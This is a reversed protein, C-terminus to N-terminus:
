PQAQPKAVAATAPSEPFRLLAPVYGGTHLQEAHELIRGRMEKATKADEVLARGLGADEALAVLEHRPYRKLWDDTLTFDQALRAPANTLGALYVYEPAPANKNSYGSWNYAVLATLTNLHGLLEEDTMGVLLELLARANAGVGSKKLASISIHDSDNPVGPAQLLLEHLADRRVQIEAPILDAAGLGSLEGVTIRGDNGLRGLILGCVTLALTLHTDGVIAARAARARLMHAELYASDPMERTSPAPSGDATTAAAKEHRLKIDKRELLEGTELNVTIVLGKGGGAYKKHDYASWWGKFAEVEVFTWDGKKIRREALAKAHVLQADLAKAKDEFYAEFTDFMDRKVSLGSKEVNFGACSVLFQGTTLQEALSRANRHPANQLMAKQLDAGAARAIVFAKALSLEGSDLLDRGDTHLNRAVLVRDAVPQLSKYGFMAALDEVTRGADNLRMMAECEELGTMSRRRMNETASIALAEGDTLERVNVLLALGAEGMEERLVQARRRSEGAVIEIQGEANWRGTANEIQGEAKLSAALEEIAVPDYHRRVNCGSRVLQVLSVSHLGLTGPTLKDSLAIVPVAVVDVRTLEPAPTGTIAADIEAETVPFPNDAEPAQAPHLERLELTWALGTKSNPVSAVPQFPPAQIELTLVEGTMAAGKISYSVWDGVSYTAGTEPCTASEVLGTAPAEPAAADEAKKKGLRKKTSLTPTLPINKSDTTQTM